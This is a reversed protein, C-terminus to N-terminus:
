ERGRNSRGSGFGAHSNEYLNKLDQMASRREVVHKKLIRRLRRREEEAKM